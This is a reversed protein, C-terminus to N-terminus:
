LVLVLLLQLSFRVVVLLVIRDDDEGNYDNWHHGHLQLPPLLVPVM